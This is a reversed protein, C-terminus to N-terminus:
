FRDFIIHGDVVMIIIYYCIIDFIVLFFAISLLIMVIFIYGWFEWGQGNLPIPSILAYVAYVALYLEVAALSLISSDAPYNRFITAIICIVASLAGITAGTIFWGNLIM